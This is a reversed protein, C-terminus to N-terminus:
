RTEYIARQMGCPLLKRGTPLRVESEISPPEGHVM